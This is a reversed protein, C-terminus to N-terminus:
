VAPAAPGWGPGSYGYTVSYNVPPHTLVTGIIVDAAVGTLVQGTATWARNNGAKATPLVTVMLAAITTAPILKEM